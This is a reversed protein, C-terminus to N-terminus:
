RSGSEPHMRDAQSDNAKTSCTILSAKCTSSDESSSPPCETHARKPKNLEDSHRYLTSLRNRIAYSRPHNQPINEQELFNLADVFNQEAEKHHSLAWHANAIDSTTVAIRIALDKKDIHSTGEERVRTLISLAQQHYELAQEWDNLMHHYVQALSNLSEAVSPHDAGYMLKRTQIEITLKDILNEYVPEETSNLLNKHVPEETSGVSEVISLKRKKRSQDTGDNECSM